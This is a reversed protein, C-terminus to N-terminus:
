VLHQSPRLSYWCGVEESKAKLEDSYVYTWIKEMDAWNTVVGHEVPYRIKLLGRYEEAKPGVFTDGELKGGAM